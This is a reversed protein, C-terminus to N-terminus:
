WLHIQHKRQVLYSQFNNIKM